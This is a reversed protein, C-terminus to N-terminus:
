HLAHFISSVGKEFQQRRQMGVGPCDSQAGSTLDRSMEWGQTMEDIALYSIIIGALM